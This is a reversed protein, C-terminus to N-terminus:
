RIPGALSKKRFHYAVMTDMVMQTMHYAVPAIMALPFQASFYGEWVLYSVTLTKQSTHITFAATSALDLGIIRSIAYNMSLILIRLGTMFGFVYVIMWGADLIQSVSASVANLIIMLVICQSFVSFAKKYPVIWEKLRPRILQGIVTPVLVTMILSGLIGLVPLDIPDGFQLLINLLFPITLLAAFNSLVCIFLSLPVNGLALATMVTGSAVTVPATAIIVSGILLDQKDTFVLNALFFTIFPILVLSSVLAASIVKFHTLQEILGSTDLSLGTILFAIFIGAKLIRYKKIVLGLEPFAAALIVVLAIGVFFWHRFLIKFM